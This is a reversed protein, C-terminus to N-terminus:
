ARRGSRRGSACPRALGSWTEAPPPAPRLAKVVAEVGLVVGVAVCAYMPLLVLAISATSSPDTPDLGAVQGLVVLGGCLLLAIFAAARGMVATQRVLALALFPVLSIGFV